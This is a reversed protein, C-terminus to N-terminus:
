PAGPPWGDAGDAAVVAADIGVTDLREKAQQALEDDVEVSVVRGPGVRWTLLAANWGTGAGLELVRHGPDLMLYDLMDVVISPCSM